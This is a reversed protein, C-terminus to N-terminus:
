EILRGIKVKQLSEDQPPIGAFLPEWIHSDKLFSNFALRECLAVWESYSPLTQWDLVLKPTGAFPLIVLEKNREIIAQAEPNDIKPNGIGDRIYNIARKEGIGPIGAVTDTHCGAMAKVQGWFVPSIKYENVFAHFDYIRKKNLKYLAIQENLLQYLDQDGSMIIFRQDVTPGPWKCLSAILDDAEFGTFHFNNVFGLRPLIDNRLQHFQGLSRMLVPDAEKKIRNSKYLPYIRKRHSQRSDWCFAIHAAQSIRCAHQIQRFFGYIIGTKKDNHSLSGASTFYAAYCVANGDVILVKAPVIM